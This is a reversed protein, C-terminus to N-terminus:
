FNSIMQFPFEFLIFLQNNPIKKFQNYSLFLADRCYKMEVFFFDFFNQNM